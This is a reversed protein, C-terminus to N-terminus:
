SFLNKPFENRNVLTEELRTKRVGSANMYVRFRQRPRVAVLLVYQDEPAGHDAQREARKEYLDNVGLLCVIQTAGM